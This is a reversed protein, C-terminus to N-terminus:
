KDGPQQVQVDAPRAGIGVLRGAVVGVQLKGVPGILRVLILALVAPAEIHM